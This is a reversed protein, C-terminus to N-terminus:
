YNVFFGMEEYFKIYVADIKSHKLACSHRSFSTLAFTTLAYVQADPKINPASSRGKIALGKVFQMRSPSEM